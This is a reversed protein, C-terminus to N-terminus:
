SAKVVESWGKVKQVEDLILLADSREKGTHRAEYEAREWHSRIWEPEPPLPLDASANVVPGNWKVEIQLAATTKGVQRPGTMIHLLKKKMGLGKFIETVVPREYPYELM